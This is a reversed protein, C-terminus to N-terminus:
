VYRRRFRAYRLTTRVMHYAARLSGALSGAVKSYGQRRRRYHMDIEVIRYGAHAAKVLMEVPWGSTREQMCLQTLASTRIARFSGIDHLSIGYLLNLTHSVLWNGLRAQLAVAGSESRSGIRSGIVLDAHGQLLPALLLPLDAPDDSGDGDLFVVIQAGLECATQFGRWCAYGYGRRAESVVLVGAARAVDATNDNSDNDVVIVWDPRYVRVEPLLSHLADAENLAPLILAVAPTSSLGDREKREPWKNEHYYCTKVLAIKVIL